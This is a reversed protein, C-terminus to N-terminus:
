IACVVCLVPHIPRHDRTACVTARVVQKSGCGPSLSPPPARIYYNRARRPRRRSLDEWGWRGEGRVSREGGGGIAVFGTAVAGCWVTHPTSSQTYAPACWCVYFPIRHGRACGPVTSVAAGCLNIEGGGGRKCTYRTYLLVIMGITRVREAVTYCCDDAGAARWESAVTRRAFVSLVCALSRWRGMGSRDGGAAGVSIVRLNKKVLIFMKENKKRKKGRWATTAAAGKLDRRSRCVRRRRWEIGASFVALNNRRRQKTNNHGIMKLRKGKYSQGNTRIITM